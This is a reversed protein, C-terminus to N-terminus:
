LLMSGVELVAVLAAKIHLNEVVQLEMQHLQFEAKDVVSLMEQM